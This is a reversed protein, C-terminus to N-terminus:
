ISPKQRKKEEAALEAAKKQIYPDDLVSDVIKKALENGKQASSCIAPFLEALLTDSFPNLEPTRNTM